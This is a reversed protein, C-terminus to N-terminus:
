CRWAAIQILLCNLSTTEVVSTLSSSHSTLANMIVSGDLIHLYPATHYKIVVTAVEKEICIGIVSYRVRIRKTVTRTSAASSLEFSVQAVSNHGQATEGVVCKLWDCKSHVPTPFRWSNSDNDNFGTNSLRENIIERSGSMSDYRAEM